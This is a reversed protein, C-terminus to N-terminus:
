AVVCARRSITGIKGTISAARYSFRVWVEEQFFLISKEPSLGIAFLSALTDMWDQLLEEPDQPMTLTHLGVVAYLLMTDQSGSTETVNQFEVWNSLAGFYNGLQTICESLM